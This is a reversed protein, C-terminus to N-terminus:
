YKYKDLFFSFLDLLFKEANVHIIQIIYIKLEIANITEFYNKSNLSFACLESNWVLLKQSIYWFFFLLFSTFETYINSFIIKPSEVRRNDRKREIKSVFFARYLNNNNELIIKLNFCAWYISILKQRPSL